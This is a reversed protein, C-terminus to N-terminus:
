PTGAKKKPQVVKGERVLWDTGGRGDRLVLWFTVEREDEGEKLAPAVWTNSVYGEYSFIKELGGETAFWAYLLDETRAVGDADVFSEASGKGTVPTLVVSQGPTFTPADSEAWAKGDREISGITPNQNRPQRTTVTVRKVTEVEDDDTEVLLRVYIMVGRELDLEAGAAAAAAEAQAVLPAVSLVATEDTGLPLEPVACEYGTTPGKPIACLSWKRTFATGDDTHVLPTLTSTGDVGISPPDARVALVRLGKVLSPKEFDEGCASATLPLLVLLLAASPKM